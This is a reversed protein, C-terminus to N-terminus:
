RNLWWWWWVVEHMQDERLYSDELSTLKSPLTLKRREKKRLWGALWENMWVGVM